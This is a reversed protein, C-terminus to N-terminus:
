DEGYFQKWEGDFDENECNALNEEISDVAFGVLTNFDWSDVMDRALKERNEVNNAIIQGGNPLQLKWM